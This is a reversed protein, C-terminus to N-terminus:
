VSFSSLREGMADATSRTKESLSLVSRASSSIEDAGAAMEGVGGLVARSKEALADMESVVSELGARMRETQDRVGSSLGNMDRLAGLIQTSAEKQESMAGDIELVLAETEAIASVVLGFAEESDKSSSVVDVISASINRLETQIAKSQASSTEALRRIEDAVVSFGAGSDGAHAAEIAANMALLNTQAAIKAITENAEMLVRSQEAIKNVREDVAAQTDKGRQSTEKLAKFREGMKAVSGSVAGINGVMEEIASSSATVGEGQERVISDLRAVSEASRSLVDKTRRVSEDQAAFQARVAEVNSLIQATASSSESANQGLEGVVASLASQDSSLGLVVSGMTRMFSNVDRSIEGFEAGGTEPLRFSLDAHGSALNHMASSVSSLPHVVVRDIILATWALLIIVAALILGCQVFMLGRSIGLIGKMSRGMFYMGVVAGKSNKVPLYLAQYPEGFVEHSGTYEMGKALVARKIAPDVPVDGVARNGDPGLLTTMVRRTGFYYSVDAGLGRSYSDIAAETALEKYAFAAGVIEDGDLIPCGRVITYRSEDVMTGEVTEGALARAVLDVPEAPWGQQADFGRANVFTVRDSRGIAMSLDAIRSLAIVDGARLATACGMDNAVWDLTAIMGKQDADLAARFLSVSSSFDKQFYSSLGKGLTIASIAVIGVGCAAFMAVLAFALRRKISRKAMYM